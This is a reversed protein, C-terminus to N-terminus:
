DADNRDLIYRPIKRLHGTSDIGRSAMWEDSPTVLDRWASLRRNWPVAGSAALMALRKRSALFATRESRFRTLPSGTEITPLSLSVGPHWAAVVQMGTAAMAHAHTREILEDLTGPDWIKQHLILAADVATSLRPHHQGLTILAHFLTETPGLVRAEAAGLQRMSSRDMLEDTLRLWQTGWAISQHVDIEYGDVDTVAVERQFELVGDSIPPYEFGSGATRWGGVVRAFDRPRVLVDIDGYQRLWPEPYITHSTAVGKVTLFDAGVEAFTRAVNPLRAELSAAVIMAREHERQITNQQDRTAPFGNEVAHLVPGQLRDIHAVNLVGAWDPATLPEAIPWDTSGDVLHALMSTLARDVLSGDPTRM